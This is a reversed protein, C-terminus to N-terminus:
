ISQCCGVRSYWLGFAKNYQSLGRSYLHKLAEQWYGRYVHIISGQLKGTLRWLIKRLRSKYQEENDDPEPFNIRERCSVKTNLLILNEINMIFHFVNGGNSCGFCYYLQKVPEVHFSPTKERHFPCLGFYGGGKKELRVYESVIEVLDSNLRIEEILDDPYYFM